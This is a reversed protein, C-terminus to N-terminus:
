RPAATPKRPRRTGQTAAGREPPWGSRLRRAMRYPHPWRDGKFSEPEEEGLLEPLSVGLAEALDWVRLLGPSIRGGELRAVYSRTLGAQLALTEQSYGRWARVRRLREGFVLLREADFDPDLLPPPM